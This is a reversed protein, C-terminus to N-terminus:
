ITARKKCIKLAVMTSCRYSGLLSNRNVVVIFRQSTPLSLSLHELRRGLLSRFLKTLM